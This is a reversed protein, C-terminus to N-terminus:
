ERFTHWRLVKKYPTSFKAKERELYTAIKLAVEHQIDM